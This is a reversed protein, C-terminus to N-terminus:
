TRPKGYNLEEEPETKKENSRLINLLVRPLICTKLARNYLPCDDGICEKFNNLPCRQM